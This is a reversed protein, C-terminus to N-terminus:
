FMGLSFFIKLSSRLVFVGFMSFENVHNISYCMLLMVSKIVIFAEKECM